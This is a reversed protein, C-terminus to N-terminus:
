FMELQVPEHPCHIGTFNQRVEDVTVRDVTYGARVWESLADAIEKKMEPVDVIASVICGCRKRAVYSMEM